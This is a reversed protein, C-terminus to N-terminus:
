KNPKAGVLEFRAKPAEEFGNAQQLQQRPITGLPGAYVVFVRGGPRERFGYLGGYNPKNSVEVHECEGKVCYNRTETAPMALAAGLAFAPLIMVPM